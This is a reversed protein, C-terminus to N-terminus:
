KRKRIRIEGNFTTFTFEPGGGNITGTMSNDFRIKYKGNKADGPETVPHPNAGPKVEFDSFVDGNDAKIKVNARFDAPLTVDIDGNLTSFSMPKSADVRDLSVIVSGNLSHAIVNGSVHNLTVKGNLNNADIEGTVGDVLIDGGNLCKLKLSTNAPVTIVLNSEEEMANTKIEIVNNDEEVDLGSGHNLDLRKMGDRSHAPRGGSHASAEVIVDQGDHRKVTIGGNMLSAHVIRPGGSSRYPVVVREPSEQARAPAFTLLAAATLAASIVIPKSM